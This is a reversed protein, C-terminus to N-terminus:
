RGRTQSFLESFARWMGPTIGEDNDLKGSITDAYYKWFGNIPLGTDENDYGHAEGEDPDAVVRDCMTGLPQLTHQWEHIWPEAPYTNRSDRDFEYTTDVRVECFGYSEDLIGYGLGVWDSYYKSNEDNSLKVCCIVSNYNKFMERTKDDFCEPTLSNEDDLRTIPADYVLVDQVIDVHSLSLEEVESEFMKSMEDAYFDIEEQTMEITDHVSNNNEDTGDADIVPVVVWLVSWQPVYDKEEYYEIADQMTEFGKLHAPDLDDYLIDFYDINIYSLDEEEEVEDDEEIEANNEDAHVDKTDVYDYEVSSNIDKESNKGCAVFSIIVLIFAVFISIKKKM